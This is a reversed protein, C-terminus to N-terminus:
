EEGELYEKINNKWCEKCNGSCGEYSDEMGELGVYGPCISYLKGNVIFSKDFRFDLEDGTKLGNLFEVKEKRSSINTIVKPEKILGDKFLNEAEEKIKKIGVKEKLATIWCSKCSMHCRDELGIENPCGLRIVDGNIKIFQSGFSLLSNVAGCSNEYIEEAIANNLTVLDSYSLSNQIRGISNYDDGLWDEIIEIVYEKGNLEIRRM